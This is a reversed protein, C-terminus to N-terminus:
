SWPEGALGTYTEYFAEHSLAGKTWKGYRGLRHVNPFCNCNTKIPKMVPAVGEIPPCKGTPWEVTNYGLINAARYWSVDSEGNCVVTNLPQTIPSFVGREPADGVSFVQTAPFGHGMDGCITPAPVTSIYHSFTEKAMFTSLFGIADQPHQFDVDEISNQYHRWLVDYAARIDWAEHDGEYDEPSVTGRFGKGYVKDRYGDFTGDLRYTVQFPDESVEPIPQHLYQAGFMESKRKKSAITVNLGACEAAHAAFLGAPGCGLILVSKTM